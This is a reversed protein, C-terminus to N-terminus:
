AFTSCWGRSVVDNQKPVHWSRAHGSDAGFEADLGGDDEVTVSSLAGRDSM